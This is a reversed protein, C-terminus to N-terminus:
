SALAKEILEQKKQEKKSLRPAKQTGDSNKSNSDRSVSDDDSESIDSLM